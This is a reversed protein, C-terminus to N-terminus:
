RAPRNGGREGRHQRQGQAGLRQHTHWRKLVAGAARLVMAWLALLGLGLAPGRDRDAADLVVLEYGALWQTLGLNALFVPL